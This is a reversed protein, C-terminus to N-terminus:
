ALFPSLSASVLPSPVLKSLKEHECLQNLSVFTPTGGIVVEQMVAKRAINDREELLNLLQKTSMDNRKRSETLGGIM